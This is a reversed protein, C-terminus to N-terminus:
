REAQSERVAELSRLLSDRLPRLSHAWRRNARALFGCVALTVLAYGIVLLPHHAVNLGAFFLNAGIGVPAFGWWATHQLILIRRDLHTLETRLHEAMSAGLYERPRSAWAMVAVILLFGVLALGIGILSV